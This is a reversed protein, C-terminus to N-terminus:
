ARFTVEYGESELQRRAESVAEALDKAQLYGHDGRDDEESTLLKWRDNEYSLLAQVPGDETFRESVVLTAIKTVKGTRFTVKYGKSELQRRAERVAEALDKAQLYSDPYEEESTVLKWGDNIYQLLAQVPGDKLADEDFEGPNVESGHETFRGAVLLTAIKTATREERTATDQVQQKTISLHIGTDDFGSVKDAPIFVQEHHWPFHKEKLLVYTVQHTDSDISLADLQGIDGDTAHIHDGRHEEEETQGVLEGGPSPPEKDQLNKFEAETCNLSVKRDPTAEVYDLPVRALGARGKPEVMLHTVTRKNRDIGVSRVQGLVKDDSGRTESGIVFTIEAM